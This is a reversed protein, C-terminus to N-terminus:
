EINAEGEQDIVNMMNEIKDYNKSMWHQKSWETNLTERGIEERIEDICMNGSALLKDIAQALDFIDRHVIKGTDIKYRNGEKFNDIGATKNLGEEIMDGFPDVCFTLFVKVIENMNTINGTMLSLPIHFANAAMEFMDKRLKILDDSTKNPAEDKLLEKGVFEPYVANESSIYAELQKQINDEFDQLFEEDGSEIDELKLRYRLGNSKKFANSASKMLKGYENGIQHIYSSIRSDDLNFHYIKDATFTKQFTYENVNVNAYVNGRISDQVDVPCDSACYLHGNHYVVFAGEEERIAKSIVKHWFETSTQNPNPSINLLYYDEEKVPENKVYTRIESRSIANAILSIASDLALEMYLLEASVDITVTDPGIRQKVPFWKELFNMFGM